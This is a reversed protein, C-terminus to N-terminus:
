VFEDLKSKLKQGERALLILVFGVLAITINELSLDFRVGRMETFGNAFLFILSPQLVIVAFAGLILCGGMEKMGRVVPQGFADDRDMRVLANSAAWLASIFFVPGVLSVWYAPTRMIAADPGELHLLQSVAAPLFLLCLALGFVVIRTVTAAVPLTRKPM